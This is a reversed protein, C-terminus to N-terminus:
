AAGGPSPRGAIRLSSRTDLALAGSDEDAPYRGADVRTVEVSVELTHEGGGILVGKLPAVDGYDRGWALTVHQRAPVQDNTPDIELWGSLPDYTALWAHSAEAGRVRDSGPRAS